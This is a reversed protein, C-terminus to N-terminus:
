MTGESEEEEGTGKTVGFKTIVLDSWEELDKIGALVEEYKSKRFLTSPILWKNNKKHWDSEFRFNIVAIMEDVTAGSNLRAKIIDKHSKGTLARNAYGRIIRSDSIYGLVYEISSDLVTSDDDFYTMRYRGNEEIYGGVILKKFGERIRADSLQAVQDGQNVQLMAQLESHEISSYGDDTGKSAFGVYILKDVPTLNRDTLVKTDFKNEM